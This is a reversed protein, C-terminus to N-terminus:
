SDLWRECEELTAGGEIALNDPFLVEYADVLKEGLFGYDGLAIVFRRGHRDSCLVLELGRAEAMAEVRREEVAAMM